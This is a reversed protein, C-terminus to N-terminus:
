ASDGGQCSAPAPGSRRRRSRNSRPDAAPVLCFRCRRSQEVCQGSCSPSARNSAVTMFQQKNNEGSSPAAGRGLEPIGVDVELLSFQSAEDDIVHQCEFVLIGEENLSLNKFGVAWGQTPYILCRAWIKEAYDVVFRQMMKKLTAWILM